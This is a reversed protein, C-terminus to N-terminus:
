FFPFPGQVFKVFVKKVPIEESDETAKNASVKSPLVRKEFSHDPVEPLCCIGGFLLVLILINM